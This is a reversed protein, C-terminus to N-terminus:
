LYISVLLKLILSIFFVTQQFRENKFGRFFSVIRYYSQKLSVVFFNSTINHLPHSLDFSLFVANQDLFFFVIVSATVYISTLVYRRWFTQVFVTCDELVPTLDSGMKHVGVNSIKKQTVLLKQGLKTIKSM